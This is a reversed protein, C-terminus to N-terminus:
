PFVNAFADLFAATFKAPSVHDRKVVPMKPRPATDNTNAVAPTLM